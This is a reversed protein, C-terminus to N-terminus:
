PKYKRFQLPTIEFRKKFNFILNKSDSFGCNLAVASVPAATELLEKKAQQLRLNIVFDYPTTGTYARFVKIFYYKSLHCRGALAEVSINDRYNKQLFLVTEEMAQKHDGYVSLFSDTNKLHLLNSLLNQLLISAEFGKYSNCLSRLNEIYGSISIRNGTYLPIDGQCNLLNVYDFTSKGELHLWIFHWDDGKTAYYQHKRCDIIVTEGAKLTYEKGEYRLIGEGSLTYMLLCTDYGSRDVFFSSDCYYDGISSATFPMIENNHQKMVPEVFLRKTNGLNEKLYLAELM